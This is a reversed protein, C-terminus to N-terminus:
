NRARRRGDIEDFKDVELVSGDEEEEETGDDGGSEESSEENGDTKQVTRWRGSSCWGDEQQGKQLNFPLL